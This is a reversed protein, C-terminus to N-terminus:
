ILNCAMPCEHFITMNSQQVHGHDDLVKFLTLMTHEINVCYLM